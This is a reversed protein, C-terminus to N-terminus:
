PAVCDDEWPRPEYARVHCAEVAADDLIAQSRGMSETGIWPLEYLTPYDPAQQLIDVGEDFAVIFVGVHDM